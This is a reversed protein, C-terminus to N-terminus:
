NNDTANKSNLFTIIHHVKIFGLERAIAVEKKAGKSIEWGQLTVLHHAYPLKACCERMCAEWHAETSDYLGPDIFRCIEHPNLVKFGMAEIKEQALAFEKFNDGPMNSIPGSLYVVEM